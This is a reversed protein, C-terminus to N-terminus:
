ARESGAHIIVEVFISSGRRKTLEEGSTASCASIPHASITFKSQGEFGFRASKLDGVAYKRNHRLREARAHLVRMRFPAQGSHVVWCMVDGEYATLQDPLLSLAANDSTTAFQRFTDLPARGVAVVVDGAFASVTGSAIGILACVLMAFSLQELGDTIVKLLLAIEETTVQEHNLLL